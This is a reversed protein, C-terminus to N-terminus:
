AKAKTVNTEDMKELPIESLLMIKATYDPDREMKYKAQDVANIITSHDRGGMLKGIRIYSLGQLHLATCLAYRAPLLFKFRSPGLIDRPHISFLESCKKVIPQQIFM